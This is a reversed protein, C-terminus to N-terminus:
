KTNFVLELGQARYFPFRADSTILPIHETIAQAIIVHDSPDKHGQAENLQLRSYTLMHEKAIPLIVIGYDKEIAKVMAEPTKWYRVGLGKNRYAVILEKVSESSIYFTNDYDELIARVDRSLSDIDITSYVFINTDLLYRM